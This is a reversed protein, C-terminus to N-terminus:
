VWKSWSPVFGPCIIFIEVIPLLYVCWWLITESVTPFSFFLSTFRSLINSELKVVHILLIDCGPTLCPWSPCTLDNVVVLYLGPCTMVQQSDLNIKRDLTRTSQDRTTNVWLVRPSSTIWHSVNELMPLVYVCWSFFLTTFRSLINSNVFHILIIDCPPTLCPWLPSTLDNVTVFYLGPCIM